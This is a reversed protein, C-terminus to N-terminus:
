YQTSHIIFTLVGFNNINERLAVMAAERCINELDAGSFGATKKALEQLFLQRDVPMDKGDLVIPM